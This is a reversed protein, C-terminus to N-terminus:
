EYFKKADQSTVALVSWVDETGANLSGELRPISVPYALNSWISCGGTLLKLDKGRRFYYLTIAHSAPRTASRNLSELVLIV